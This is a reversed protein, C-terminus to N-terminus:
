AQSLSQLVELVTPRNAPAHALCRLALQRFEAPADEAPQLQLRQAVVERAIFLDAITPGKDAVIDEFPMQRLSIECLIVGLAYVEAARTVPEGALLEPARSAIECQGFNLVPAAHDRVKRGYDFIDLKCVLEDSCLVSRSTLNKSVVSPRVSHVFSLASCIDVSMRLREQWPLEIKPNRLVSRLSGKSMYEVVILLDELATMSTGILEVLNRHRFPAYSTVIRNAERMSIQLSRLSVRLAVVPADRYEGKRLGHIGLKKGLHIVDRGLDLDAVGGQPPQSSSVVSVDEKAAPELRSPSLLVDSHEYFSSRTDGSFATTRKRRRYIVSAIVLIAVGCVGLITVVTTMLKSSSSDANSLTSPAAAGNSNSSDGELIQTKNASKFILDTVCIPIGKFSTLSPCAQASSTSAGRSSDGSSSASPSVFVNNAAVFNPISKLTELEESTLSVPRVIRNNELTLSKLPTKLHLLFIPFATLTSGVFEVASFVVSTDVSFAPITCRDFSLLTMTTPRPLWSKEEFTVNFNVFRLIDLSKLGGLSSDSFVLTPGFSWAGVRQFRLTKVALPSSFRVNLALSTLAPTAARISSELAASGTDLMDLMWDSNSTIPQFEVLSRAGSGDDLEHTVEMINNLDASKASRQLIYHGGSSDSSAPTQALAPAPLAAALALAALASALAVRQRRRRSSTM